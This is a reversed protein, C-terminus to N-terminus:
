GRFKLPSCSRDKQTVVPWFCLMTDTNVSVEYLKDYLLIGQNQGNFITLPYCSDIISSMLSTSANDCAMWMSWVEMKQSGTIRVHPCAGDKKEKLLLVRAFVGGCPYLFWFIGRVYVKLIRIWKIYWEGLGFTVCITNTPDLEPM